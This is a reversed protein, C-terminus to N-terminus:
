GARTPAAVAGVDEVPLALDDVTPRRSVLGVFFWFISFLEWAFPGYGLFGLLPMEFVHWFGVFPITYYWKPFAWYNWFEWLLGCTLGGLYLALPLRWSGRAWHGLISPLGRLYNLPDLILAAFGWILPFFYLPWIIPLIFAAVGLGILAWPVFGPMRFGRGEPLSSLWRTGRLWTTTEWVAPIVTAFFICSWLNSYWDPIDSPRFYHWNRVFNNLWEFGWWMAASLPLMSLFVRRQSMFLSRGDRLYVLADVVFIYGFWVAAFWYDSLPRLFEHGPYPFMIGPYSYDPVLHKFLETPVSRGFILVHGLILLALGVWFHPKL